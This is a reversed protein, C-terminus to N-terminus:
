GEANQLEVDLTGVNGYVDSASFHIHVKGDEETLEYSLGEDSLKCLETVTVMSRIYEPNEMQEQNIKTIGDNLTIVPATTDNVHLYCSNQMYGGYIDAAYFKVIYDGPLLFGNVNMGAIQVDEYASLDVVSMLYSSIDSGDEATLM